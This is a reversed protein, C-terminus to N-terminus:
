ALGDTGGAHMELGDLLRWNGLLATEVHALLREEDGPELVNSLERRDEAAHASDLEAHVDFYRTADSNPSAGYHEVLGARKTESIAPQSSEIAYLVALTAARDRGEDAWAGVCAKTSESASARRDGGVAAVFQDWLEIHDREEDAHAQNGALATAQALAVVAHRYQGAYAALEPRGLEGRSWRQYFPHKLVDRQRCIADARDFFDPM